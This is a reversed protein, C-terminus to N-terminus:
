TSPSYYKVAIHKPITILLPKYLLFPVPITETYGFTSDHVELPEVATKSHPDVLLMRIQKGASVTASIAARFESDHQRLKAAGVGLFDFGGAVSELSSKYDIGSAVSYDADTIGNRRLKLVFVVAPFAVLVGVVVASFFIYWQMVGPQVKPLSLLGLLAAAEILAVALLTCTSVLNAMWDRVGLLRHRTSLFLIAKLGFRVFSNM